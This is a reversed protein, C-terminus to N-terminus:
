LFNLLRRITRILYDAKKNPPLQCILSHLWHYHGIGLVLSLALISTNEIKYCSECVTEFEDGSAPDVQLLIM